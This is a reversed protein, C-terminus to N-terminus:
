PCDSPPPSAALSFNSCGHATSVSEVATSADHCWLNAGVNAGYLRDVWTSSSDGDDLVDGPDNGGCLLDRHNGGNMDDDGANGNMLDNGDNGDMIDDGPGGTMIDDGDNGEMVDSGYGGNLTDDGTGGTVTDDGGGAHITDPHGGGNLEESYGASADAGRLVDAGDNGNIRGLVQSNSPATLNYTHASWEFRLSDAADSGSIVVTSIGSAAISCCFLGTTSSEYYGWAEYNSDTLYDSVVVVESPQSAGAVSCTLTGAAVTCRGGCAASDYNYPSTPCTASAEPALSAVCVCVCM